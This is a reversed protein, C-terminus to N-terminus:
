PLKRLIWQVLFAAAGFAFLALGALTVAPEGTVLGAALLLALLVAGVLWAQRRQDALVDRAYPRRRRRRLDELSPKRDPEMGAIDCSFPETGLATLAM